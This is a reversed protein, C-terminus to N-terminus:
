KTNGTIIRFSWRRPSEVEKGTTPSVGTTTWERRAEILHAGRWPGAGDSERQLQKPSRWRDTMASNVCLSVTNGMSAKKKEDDDDHEQKGGNSIDSFRVEVAGRQEHVHGWLCAGPRVRAIEQSLELSGSHNGKVGDAEDLVGNPPGHTLLVDIQDPIKGFGAPDKVQPWGKFLKYDWSHGPWWPVGYISIGM